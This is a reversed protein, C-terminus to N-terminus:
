AATTLTGGITGTGTINNTGMALVGGMTLGTLTGVSTINPQAATTLTGAITGSVTLNGAFLVNGSAIWLAYSNTLTINTSAIPAANIYVTAANTITVANTGVLTPTGFSTIVASARTGATGSDTYTTAQSQYQIGATLWSTASIASGGVLIGGGTPVISLNGTSSVLLDVYNTETGDKTNYILRLCQGTSNNISLQKNPSYTGFGVNGSAKFMNIRNSANFAVSWNGIFFDSSNNTGATIASQIYCVGFSTVFRYIGGSGNSGNLNTGFDGVCLNGGINLASSVSMGGKITLSNQGNILSNDTSTTDNSLIKGSNIWLAYSNTLTINTSAVPAANIYITAANTITVANTGVITPTGFSTIVASARTGATDTDTYTTALGNYQIGATLWSSSSVATGGITLRTLTGVSTINTQAATTLTGGITGTGTINNTGMALVGGMTLGTLTGLSTINPQAATQLTGTLSVATLNRFSSIDKNADVIVAKSAVVTGPSANLLNYVSYPLYLLDAQAKTLFGGSSFASTNFIASTFTPPLSNM